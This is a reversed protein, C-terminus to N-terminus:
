SKIDLLSDLLHNQAQISKLNAKFDYGAVRQDILENEISVNPVRSSGNADANEANPNFITTTPPNADTVNVKVVGGLANSISQAKQAHYPEDIVQGNIVTKTSDRNAINQASIELRRSAATLGSMAISFVSTM